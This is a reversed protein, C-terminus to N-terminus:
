DIVPYPSVFAVTVLCTIRPPKGHLDSMLWVALHAGFGKRGRSESPVCASLFLHHTGVAFSSSSDVVACARWLGKRTGVTSVLIKKEGVQGPETSNTTPLKSHKSHEGNSARRILLCVSGFMSKRGLVLCLRSCLQTGVKPLCIRVISCSYGILM